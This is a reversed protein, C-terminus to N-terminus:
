DSPKGVVRNASAESQESELRPPRKGRRTTGPDVVAYALEIASCAARLLLGGRSMDGRGLFDLPYKLRAVFIDSLVGVYKDTAISGLLVFDCDPARAALDIASRELPERYRPESRTSRGTGSADCDRQTAMSDVDFIGSNSTIVFAVALGAHPWGFQRAYALKGRFYLGSM